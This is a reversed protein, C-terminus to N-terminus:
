LQGTNFSHTELSQMWPVDECAEASLETGTDRIVTPISKAKFCNASAETPSAPSGMHPPATPHTPLPPYPQMRRRDLLVAQVAPMSQVGDCGGGGGGVVMCDIEVCMQAQFTATTSHDWMYSVLEKCWGPNCRSVVLLPDRPLPRLIAPLVLPEALPRLPSGRRSSGSGSLDPM